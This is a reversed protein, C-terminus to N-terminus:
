MSAIGEGCLGARELYHNLDVDDGDDRDSYKQRDSRQYPCSNGHVIGHFSFTVAIPMLWPGSGEPSILGGLNCDNDVRINQLGGM